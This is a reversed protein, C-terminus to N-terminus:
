FKKFIKKSIIKKKKGITNLLFLGKANKLIKLVGPKIKIFVPIGMGPDLMFTPQGNKHLFFHLNNNKDDQIMTINQPTLGKNQIAIMFAPEKYLPGDKSYFINGYINKIGRWRSIQEQNAIYSLFLACVAIIINAISGVINLWNM